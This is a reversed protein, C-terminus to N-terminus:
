HVCRVVGAFEVELITNLSGIVKQLDIKDHDSPM